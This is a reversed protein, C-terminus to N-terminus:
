EPWQAALQRMERLTLDLIKAARSLTIADAELGKRVLRYLRDEIFDSELLKEPEDASRGPPRGHFADAQLGDPEEVRKLARGTRAKYGGQFRGWVEHRREKPLRMSIRYLVTAYSVRFIRKLKLVCDVFALGSAEELERDFVAEPMLFYGAFEDAESEEDKPEGTEHVDYADLHLVL